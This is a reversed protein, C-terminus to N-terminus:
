WEKKSEMEKEHEIPEAIHWEHDRDPVFVLSQDFTSNKNTDNRRHTNVIWGGIVKARRTGVDLNEWKWEIRKRM